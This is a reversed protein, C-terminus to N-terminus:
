AGALVQSFVARDVNGGSLIVAIKRGKMRAREKL